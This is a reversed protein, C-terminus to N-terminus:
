FEEVKLKLYNILEKIEIKTMEDLRCYAIKNIEMLISLLQEMIDPLRKKSNRWIDEDEQYRNLFNLLMYITRARLSQSPICEVIGKITLLVTGFYIRLDRDGLCRIDQLFEKDIEMSYSKM